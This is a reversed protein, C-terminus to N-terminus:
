RIARKGALVQNYRRSMEFHVAKALTPLYIKRYTTPNICMLGKDIMNNLRRCFAHAEGTAPVVGTLLEGQIGLLVEDPQNRLVEELTKM